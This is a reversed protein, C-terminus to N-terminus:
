TLLATREWRAGIAVVGSNGPRTRTMARPAISGVIPIPGTASTESVAELPPM